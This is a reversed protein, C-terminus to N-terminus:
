GPCEAPIGNFVLKLSVVETNASFHVLTSSDVFGPLAPLTSKSYIWYHLWCPARKMDSNLFFLTTSSASKLKQYCYPTGAPKKACCFFNYPCAGYLLPTQTIVLALDGKPIPVSSPPNISKHTFGVDMSHDVTLDQSEWSRLTAGPSIMVIVPNAWTSLSEDGFELWPFKTLLLVSFYRMELNWIVVQLGKVGARSGSFSGIVSQFDATLNRFLSYIVFYTM